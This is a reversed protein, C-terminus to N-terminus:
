PFLTTTLSLFSMRSRGTIVSVDKFFNATGLLQDETRILDIILCKRLILPYIM